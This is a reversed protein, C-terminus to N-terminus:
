RRSAPQAASAGFVVHVWIPAPQRLRTQGDNLAAAIKSLSRQLVSRRGPRSLIAGCHVCPEAQDYTGWPNGAVDMLFRSLGNTIERHSGVYSVKTLLLPHFLDSLFQLTFRSVHGYPPNHRGCAGCTTRGIRLDQQFPVGIVITHRAVRRIEACASVLAAGALHELVEACMVVDFSADAFPLATIDGRVWSLEVPAAPRLLDLAVVRPVRDALLTSLHGDRAGADLASVAQVPVLRLLDSSRVREVDRQRYADLDM